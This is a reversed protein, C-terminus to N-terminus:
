QPPSPDSHPIPMHRLAYQSKPVLAVWQHNNISFLALPHTWTSVDRTKTSEGHVVVSSTVEALEKKHAEQKNTFSINLKGNHYDRYQQSDDCLLNYQLVPRELQLSIVYLHLCMGDETSVLANNVVGNFAKKDHKLINLIKRKQMFLSYLTFLRLCNSLFTTGTLAISLADFMCKSTTEVPLFSRLLEYKRDQRCNRFHYCRMVFEQHLAFQRNAFLPPLLNLPTKLSSLSTINSEKPNLKNAGIVKLSRLWGSSDMLIKLVILMGEELIPSPVNSYFTKELYKTFELRCSHLRDNCKPQGPKTVAVAKKQNFIYDYLPVNRVFIGLNKLYQLNQDIISESNKSWYETYAVIFKSQIGKVFKFYLFNLAIAECCKPCPSLRTYIVVYPPPDQDLLHERWIRYLLLIETHIKTTTTENVLPRAVICNECKGVPPWFRSNESRMYKGIKSFDPFSQSTGIDSLEKDSVLLLIGFQHADAQNWFDNIIQKVFSDFQPWQNSVRYGITPSPPGYEEVISCRLEAM